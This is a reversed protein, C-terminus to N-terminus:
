LLDRLLLHFVTKSLDMGFVSNKMTTEESKKITTKLEIMACQSASVPLSSVM